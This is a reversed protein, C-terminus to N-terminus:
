YYFLNSKSAAFQLPLRITQDTKSAETIFEIFIQYHLRMPLVKFACLVVGVTAKRHVGEM